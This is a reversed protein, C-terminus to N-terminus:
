ADVEDDKNKAFIAYRAFESSAKLSVMGVAIMLVGALYDKQALFEVTRYFFVVAFIVLIISIADMIWNRM